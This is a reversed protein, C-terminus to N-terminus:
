GQRVLRAAFFGDLGALRPEESPWFHPLTRLDGEANIFEAPIVDAAADVPERRFDPNRRLFSAIQL